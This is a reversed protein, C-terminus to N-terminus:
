FDRGSAVGNRGLEFILAGGRCIPSVVPPAQSNRFSVYASDGSGFDGTQLRAFTRTTEYSGLTESITGGRIHSPDASYTEITGGLNSTSAAGLDGAGSSLIVKSVNESIV